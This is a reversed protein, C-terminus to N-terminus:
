DRYTGVLMVRRPVYEDDGDRMIDGSFPALPADEACLEGPWENLGDEFKFDLKFDRYAKCSEKLKERVKEWPKGQPCDFACRWPLAASNGHASCFNHYRMPSRAVDGIHWSPVLTCGFQTEDLCERECHWYRSYGDVPKEAYNYLLYLPVADCAAAYKELVEIQPQEGKGSHGRLGRYQGKPYLKKAQVAYKDAKDTGRRVYVMLDAGTKAEESRTVSRICVSNYPNLSLDIALLDTLTEEGLRINPQRSHKLLFWTRCAIEEATTYKRNMQKVM